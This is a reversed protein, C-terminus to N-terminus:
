ALRVEAYAGKNGLRRLDYNAENFNLRNLRDRLQAEAETGGNPMNKAEVILLVPQSLERSLLIALGDFEAILQADRIVETAGAFAIIAGRYDIEQLAIELQAFENLADPSFLGSGEAWNKYARVQQSAATSGYVRIIPPKEVAPANKLRFRANGDGLIEPLLFRIMALGNRTSSELSLSVDLSNIDAEFDLVQKTV